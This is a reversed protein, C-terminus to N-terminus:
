YQWVGLFNWERHLRKYYRPLSLFVYRKIEKEEWVKGDFVCKLTCLWVFDLCSALSPYWWPSTFTRYRELDICACSKMQSWDDEPGDNPQPKVVCTVWQPSFFVFLPKLPGADVHCLSRPPLLCRPEVAAMSRSGVDETEVWWRFVSERELPFHSSANLEGWWLTSNM